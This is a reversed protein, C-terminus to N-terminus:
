RESNDQIDQRVDGLFNVIRTYERPHNGVLRDCMEIRHTMLSGAIPGMFALSYKYRRCNCESKAMDIIPEAMPIGDRMIEVTEYAFVPSCQVVVLQRNRDPTTCSALVLLSLFIKLNM